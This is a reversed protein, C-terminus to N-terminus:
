PLVSPNIIALMAMYKRCRKAKEASERKTSDSISFDMLTRQADHLMDPLADALAAVLEDRQNILANRESLAKVWEAEGLELFETQIGECANVCAVIRRANAIREGRYLALIFEDEKNRIEPHAFINLVHWPEKTHEMFIM